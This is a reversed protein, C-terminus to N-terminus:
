PRPPHTETPAPHPAAKPCYSSTLMGRLDTGQESQSILSEPLSLIMGQTLSSVRYLKSQSEPLPSLIGCTQVWEERRTVCSCIGALCLLISNNHGTRLIWKREKLAKQIVKYIKQLPYSSFREGVQGFSSEPQAPRKLAASGAIVTVPGRQLLVKYFLDCLPTLVSICLASWLCARNLAFIPDLCQCVLFSFM